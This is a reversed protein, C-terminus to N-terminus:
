IRERPTLRGPLGGPADNRILDFLTLEARVESENPPDPRDPHNRLWALAAVRDALQWVQVPRAHAEKRSTKTFGAAEIIGLHILESPVAGFLKPDIGAPLVPVGARVDDATATGRVFMAHLLARRGRLVYLERYTSLLAFANAKRREGEAGNFDRIPLASM